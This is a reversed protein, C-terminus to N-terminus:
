HVKPCLYLPDIRAGRCGLVDKQTKSYASVMSWPAKSSKFTFRVLHLCLNYSPLELSHVLDWPRAPEPVWGHVVMENRAQVHLFCIAFFILRALLSM